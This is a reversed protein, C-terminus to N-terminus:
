ARGGKPRLRRIPAASRGYDPLSKGTWAWAELTLTWVMEIREAATTTASLDDSPEDGLGYKRVPWDDRAAARARAADETEPLM